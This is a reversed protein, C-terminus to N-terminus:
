QLLKKMEASEAAEFPTLGDSGKVKKNAGKQVLFAVAPKHNEYVAALLPTIGFKDTANVNAGKSLLFEMVEVQGFDAAWHLPTRGNKDVMAAKLGKNNIFDKVSQVDGTKVAWAFNEEPSTEAQTAM